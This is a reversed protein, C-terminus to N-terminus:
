LRHESRCRTVQNSLTIWDHAGGPQIIIVEPQMLRMLNVIWPATWPTPKRGNTKRRAVSNSRVPVTALVLPPTMVSTCPGGAATEVKARRTISSAGGTECIVELEM